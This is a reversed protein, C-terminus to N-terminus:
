YLFTPPNTFEPALNFLPFKVLLVWTKETDDNERLKAIEREKEVVEVRIGAKAMDLCTRLCSVDLIVELFEKFVRAGDSALSTSSVAEKCFREIRHQDWNGGKLWAFLENYFKVEEENM